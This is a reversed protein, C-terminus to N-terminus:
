KNETLFHHQRKAHPITDEAWLKTAFPPITSTSTKITTPSQIKDYKKYMGPCPFTYKITTTIGTWPLDSNPVFTIYKRASHVKGWFRGCCSLVPNTKHPMEVTRPHTQKKHVWKKGIKTRPTGTSVIGGM